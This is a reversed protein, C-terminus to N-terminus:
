GASPGRSSAIIRRMEAGRMIAAAKNATAQPPLSAEELAQRAAQDAAPQLSEEGAGEAHGFPNPGFGSYALHRDGDTVGRHFECALDEAREVVTM